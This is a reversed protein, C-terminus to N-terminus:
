KKIVCNITGCNIKEEHKRRRGPITLGQRVQLRMLAPLADQPAAIKQRHDRFYFASEGGIILEVKFLNAGQGM